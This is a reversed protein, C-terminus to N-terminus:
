SDNLFKNFKELKKLAKLKDKNGLKAQKIALELLEITKEYTKRDVPYPTGDKGGHAFSFRAPDVLSTPEGYILESVLALARITKAGVGQIALLAEFDRPMKEYTKLLIKEIYKPNIDALLVQHRQPLKLM